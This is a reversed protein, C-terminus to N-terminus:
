EGSSLGGYGGEFKAVERVGGGAAAGDGEWRRGLLGAATM